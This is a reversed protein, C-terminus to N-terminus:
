SWDCSEHLTVFMFQLNYIQMCADSLPPLTKHLRTGKHLDTQFTWVVKQNLQRIITFGAHVIKSDTTQPTTNYKISACTNMNGPLM